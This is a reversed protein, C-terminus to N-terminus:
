CNKGAILPSMRYSATGSISRINNETNWLGCICWPAYYFEKTINEHELQTEPIRKYDMRWLLRFVM